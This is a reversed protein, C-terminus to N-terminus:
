IALELQKEDVPRSEYDEGTGHCHRCKGRRVETPRAATRGTWRWANVMVRGEKRKSHKSLFGEDTLETIRSRVDNLTIRQGLNYYVDRGTMDQDPFSQFLMLITNKQLKAKENKIADYAQVQCIDSM